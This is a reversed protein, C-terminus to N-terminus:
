YELNDLLDFTFTETFVKRIKPTLPPQYFSEPSEVLYNHAVEPLEVDDAM